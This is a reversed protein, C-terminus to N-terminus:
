EDESGETAPSPQESKPDALFRRGEQEILVALREYTEETFHYVNPQIVAALFLLHETDYSTVKGTRMREFFALMDRSLVHDFERLLAEFEKKEALFVDHEVTDLWDSSYVNIGFMVHALKWLEFTKDQEACEKYPQLYVACALRRSYGSMRVAFGVPGSRHHHKDIQGEALGSALYATFADTTSRRNIRAKLQTLVKTTVRSVGMAVLRDREAISLPLATKELDLAEISSFKESDNRNVCQHFKDEQEYFPWPGIFKDPKTPHIVNLKKRTLGLAIFSDPTELTPAPAAYRSVPDSKTRSVNRTFQFAAFKETPADEALLKRKVVKKREVPQILTVKLKLREANKKIRLVEDPKMRATVLLFGNLHEAAIRSPALILHMSSCGMTGYSLYTQRGKNANVFRTHRANVYAIAPAISGANVPLPVKKMVRREMEEKTFRRGMEFQRTFGSGTEGPVEALVARMVKRLTYRYQDRKLIDLRDVWAHPSAIMDKAHDRYYKAAVRILLEKSGHENERMYNHAIVKCAEVPGIFTDSDALSPTLYNMRHDMKDAFRHRRVGQIAAIALERRARPLHQRILNIARRAIANLTDLTKENYGMSERSPTVAISSPPAYLVIEHSDTSGVLKTLEDIIGRTAEHNDLPYLVSGYLVAIKTSRTTYRGTQFLGFGGEVIGTYDRIRDIKEGNLTAQIGGERVVRLLAGRFTIVKDREIPITVKLGSRTTPMSAMLQISPKGDTDDNGATLAYTSMVGDCWSTVMFHDTLCFPAKCGLGFGGIQSDDNTKTSGFYTLYVEVMNHDAIGTGEDEVTFETDTLTLKIPHNPKGAAIHADKANCITERTVAFEKDRYLADSLIKFAHASSAIQFDRAKGGGVIAYNDSPQAHSVQM